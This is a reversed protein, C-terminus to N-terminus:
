GREDDTGREDKSEYERYLRGFTQTPIKGQPNHHYVDEGRCLYSRFLSNVSMDNKVRTPSYRITFGARRRNSPNAPSSHVLKDDHISFWGAPLNISRGETNDINNQDIGLGLVSDNKGDLRKHEIMGGTHTGPIVVMAGNSEDVDDIALWATVSEAPQMSRKM